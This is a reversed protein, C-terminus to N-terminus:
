SEVFKHSSTKLSSLVIEQHAIELEKQTSELETRATSLESQTEQLIQFARALESRTSELEQTFQKYQDIEIFALTTGLLHNKDTWVQSIEIDFHKIGTETVWEVDKLSTIDQQGQIAQMLENLNTLRAPMLEQLPRKLDQLTIGFLTRARENAHLLCGNVDIALHALFSREFATEWFYNQISPLNATKRKRSKPTISLYDNLDLELDKTYVQHRISVSALIQKCNVFTEASGLVLFGTNKLAFHFRALISFQTESNFYILVNRCILLDIKSIPANQTLDHYSFVITRRLESHFVYGKETKQFYKKLWEPPIGMVERPSYTTQRAQWIAAEDIDTAFCRVRRSCAEIGMAEALLILISCIEQGSACGASWVRISENPSQTAILKPIIEAALYDWTNRDRFFSTVNILVTELLTQYEKPHQQLYALYHEYTQINISGMRHKFRRMLSSRKYGTLDCSHAYKLYNLLAEFEPSTKEIGQIHDCSSNKEPHLQATM